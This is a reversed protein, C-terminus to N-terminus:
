PRVGFPWSAVTLEILPVSAFTLAVTGVALAFAILEMRRPVPRMAPSDDADARTFTARVVRAVYAFSALGGGVLVIAWWWQGSGISAQLLEWKGAFGITPPLGALSVGALAFAAVSLPRHTLTDGLERLDGTGRARLICGAALFMGAKAVGHALILLILGGWATRSAAQDGSAALQVTLGLALFLYGMQAVTSYSVIRKLTRERLAQVCGWAVAAAGLVCLLVDPSPTEPGTVTWVRILVVLSAKVVLASLLPSVASPATAHAPPLWSHLPFLASKMAMGVATLALVLSTLPGPELLDAALRMDLVGTAAYVIGVALLFALSGLVAVFLYRLAASRADRGALAVLAVACVGMLELAVYANFLDAALYVGNLASWLGMALPWFWPGGRVEAPGTAFVLVAGAVLATLALMVVSLGDAALAIGLPPSWGGIEIAAVGDAAVSICVAVVLVIVSAGTVISVGARVREREVPTAAAAVAGALPVLVLAPLLVASM